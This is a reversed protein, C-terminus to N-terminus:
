LYFAINEAHEITDAANRDCREEIQRSRFMCAYYLLYSSFIGTVVALKKSSGAVRVMKGSMIATPTIMSAEIAKEITDNNELHNLEHFFVGELLHKKKLGDDNYGMLIDKNRKNLLLFQRTKYKIVGVGGEEHDKIELSSHGHEKFFAKIEKEIKQPLTTGLNELDIMKEEFSHNIQLGKLGALIGAFVATKSYFVKKAFSKARGMAYNDQGFGVSALLLVMIIKNKIM